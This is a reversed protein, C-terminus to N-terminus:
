KLVLQVRFHKDESATFSYSQSSSVLTDNLYIGGFSYKSTNFIYVFLNVTDGSQYYDSLGKVICSYPYNIEASIHIYDNPNESFDRWNTGTQTNTSLKYKICNNKTTTNYFGPYGSELLFITRKINKNYSGNCIYNIWSDGSSTTTLRVVSTEELNSCESYFWILTNRDQAVEAPLEKPAYYLNSYRFFAQYCWKPYTNLPLVLNKASYINNRATNSTGSFLYDFTYGAKDSTYPIPADTKGIFNDGWLLSMINGSAEFPGASVNVTGNIKTAYTDNDSCNLGNNNGKLYISEGENLTITVTNLTKNTFYSKTDHFLIQTWTIKDSSKYLEITYGQNPTNEDRYCGQRISITNNDRFSTITFYEQDYPVPTPGPGPGSGKTWVQVGNYVLKQVDYGNFNINQLNSDITFTSM